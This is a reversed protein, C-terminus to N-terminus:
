SNAERAFLFCIKNINFEKLVYVIIYKKLKKFEDCYFDFPLMIIVDDTTKYAIRM